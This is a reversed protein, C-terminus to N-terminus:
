RAGSRIASKSNRGASKRPSAVSKPPLSQVDVAADREGVPPTAAAPQTSAATGPQLEREAQLWIEVDRDAPRGLAEWIQQARSSIDAHTPQSLAAMDARPASLSDNMVAINVPDPIEPFRPFARIHHQAFFAPEV